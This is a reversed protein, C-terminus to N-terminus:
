SVNAPTCRLLAARSLDRAARNDQGKIALKRNVEGVSACLQECERIAWVLM